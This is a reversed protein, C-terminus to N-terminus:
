TRATRSGSGRLSGRRAKRLINLVELHGLEAFALQHLMCIDGLIPTLQHIGHNFRNADFSRLYTQDFAFSSLGSDFVQSSITDQHLYFPLTCLHSVPRVQAGVHNVQGGLRSRTLDVHPLV